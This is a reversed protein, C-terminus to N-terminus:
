DLASTKDGTDDQRANGVKWALRCPQGFVLKGDVAYRDVPDLDYRGADTEVFISIANRCSGGLRIRNGHGEICLLSGAPLVLGEDLILHNRDGAIRVYCTAEAAAGDSLEVTNDNGLFEVLLSRGAPRAKATGTFGIRNGTGLDSVAVGEAPSTACRASDPERPRAQALAAAIRPWIDLDRGFLVLQEAIDNDPESAAVEELPRGWLLPKDSFRKRVGVKTFIHDLLNADASGEGPRPVPGNSAADPKSGVHASLRTPAAAPHQGRRFYWAWRTSRFYAALEDFNEILWSIPPSVNRQTGPSLDHLPVDLFRQIRVLALFRQDRLEEYSVQLTEHHQFREKFAALEQEQFEFDAQLVEPEYYRPQPRYDSNGSRNRERMLGYSVFRRLLDHRHLLIVKLGRDQELQPWVDTWQGIPAGNRHLAFGVAGVEPPHERFIHRELIDRAPTDLDYPEEGILHPNFAEALCVLNPHADLCTRLMHTGSRPASLILFKKYIPTM